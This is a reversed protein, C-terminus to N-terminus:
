EDTQNSNKGKRVENKLIEQVALWDVNFEKEKPLAKAVKKYKRLANVLSNDSGTYGHEDRMYKCTKSYFIRRKNPVVKGQEDKIERANDMLHTFAIKLMDEDIDLSPRGVGKNKEFDANELALHDILEKSAKAVRGSLSYFEGLSKELQTIRNEYTSILEQLSSLKLDVMPVNSYQTIGVRIEGFSTQLPEVWRDQIDEEFNLNKKEYEKELIGKAVSQHNNLSIRTKKVIKGTTESIYEGKAM